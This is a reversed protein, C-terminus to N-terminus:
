PLFPLFRGATKWVKTCCVTIRRALRDDWYMEPHVDRHADKWTVRANWANVAAWVGSMVLLAHDDTHLAYAAWLAESGVTILWGFWHRASLLVGTISWILLSATWM